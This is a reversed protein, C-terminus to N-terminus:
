YGTCYQFHMPDGFAAGWYFGHKEFYPAIVRQSDSIKMKSKSTMPNASANVDISIGWSHTSLSKSSKRKARYNYCGDYSHIHDSLGANWLDLYVAQLIPGIKKHTSVNIMKGGSGARMRFTAINTGAKGFVKKIDGLGDPRRLGGEDPTDDGGAPKDPRIDAQFMAQLTIEGAIGDDELGHSRQWAAIAKVTKPGLDGDVYAGVEAQIKRVVSDTYMSPRVAYWRVADAIQKASLGGKAQPAPAPQKNSKRHQKRGPRASRQIATPVTGKAVAVATTEAEDELEAEADEVEPGDHQPAKRQQVVHVLEHALTEHAERSELGAGLHIDSGQAYGMAGQEAGASDLHVRVDSLHASFKDVLPKLRAQAEVSSTALVAQLPQPAGRPSLAAAGQAYGASRLPSASSTGATTPSAPTPGASSKSEPSSQNVRM